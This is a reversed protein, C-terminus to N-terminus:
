LFKISLSECLVVMKKEFLRDYKYLLYDLSKVIASKSHSDCPLYKWNYEMYGVDSFAM